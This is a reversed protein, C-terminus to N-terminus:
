RGDSQRNHHLFSDLNNKMIFTDRPDRAVTHSDTRPEAVTPTDSDTDPSVSAPIAASQDLPPQIPDSM